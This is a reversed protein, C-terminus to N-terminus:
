AAAGATSPSGNGDPDHRIANLKALPDIDILGDDDVDYDIGSVTNVKVSYPAPVVVGTASLNNFTLTFTEGLDAVTDTKLTIFLQHRTATTTFNAGSRGSSSGGNRSAPIATLATATNSYERIEIDDTNAAVGSAQLDITITDGELVQIGAVGPALDGNTSTTTIVLAPTDVSGIVPLDTTLGGIHPDLIATRSQPVLRSQPHLM